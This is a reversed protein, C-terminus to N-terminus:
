DSYYKNEEAAEQGKTTSQEEEKKRNDHQLINLPEKQLWIRLLGFVAVSVIAYGVIGIIQVQINNLPLAILGLLSLGGDVVMTTHLVKGLRTTWPIAVDGLLM